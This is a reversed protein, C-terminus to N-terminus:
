YSCWLMLGVFILLVDLDADWKTFREKDFERSIKNYTPWVKAHIGGTIYPSEYDPAQRPSTDFRYTYDATSHHSYGRSSGHHPSPPATFGGVGGGPARQHPRVPTPPPPESSQPLPSTPTPMINPPQSPVPVQEELASSCTEYTSRRTSQRRLGGGGPPLHPFSTPRHPLPPTEQPSTESQPIETKLAQARFTQQTTILGLPQTGGVFGSTPRPPIYNVAPNKSNRRPLMAISVLLPIHSTCDQSHCPTYVACGRRLPM